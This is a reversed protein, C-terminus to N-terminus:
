GSGYEHNRTAWLLCHGGGGCRPLVPCGDHHVRALGIRTAWDVVAVLYVFGKAMPVYTVDMAWVHNVRTIALHRLLYPYVQHAPQRQTTRPKQYLAELGMRRMLTAVHKRGVTFGEQRLLDRLMRAGAFPWEMHLRDMRTMLGQDDESIPKPRYYVSGRSIRLAKAQKTVPLTHSRDMM